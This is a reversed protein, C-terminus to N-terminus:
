NSLRTQSKTVWPSYGVLSRQGHSKGPWFVPTPLGKRKWPIKGTWPNFRPRRHQPCIRKGDSGDPFSQTVQNNHKVKQLVALSKGSTVTGNQMGVLLTHQNWTEKRRWRCKHPHLPIQKRHHNPPKAVLNHGVRTIGHVTARWAGRGMPNQLCPYQLPNGNGEGIENHSRM